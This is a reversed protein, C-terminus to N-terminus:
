SNRQRSGGRRTWWNLETGGTLFNLMKINHAPLPINLLGRM